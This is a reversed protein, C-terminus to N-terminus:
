LAVKHIFLTCYGDTSLDLGWKGDSLANQKSNYILLAMIAHRLEEPSEFEVILEDGDPNLAEASEVLKSWRDMISMVTHGM